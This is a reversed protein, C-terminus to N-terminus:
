PDIEFSTRVQVTRTVDGCRGTSVITYYEVDDVTTDVTCTVAATCGNLGDVVFDYEVPGAACIATSDVGNQYEPFEQAPFLANMGLGAGSEAAYFARTLLTEEEFTRANNFVLQSIAVALIAMLTIVFIAAPLGIGRQRYNMRERLIM